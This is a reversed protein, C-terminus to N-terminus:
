HEAKVLSSPASSSLKVHFRGLILGSFLSAVKLGTTVVTTQRQILETAM